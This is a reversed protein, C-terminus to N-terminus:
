TDTGRPVTSGHGGGQLGIRIAPRLVVHDRDGPGLVPAQPRESPQRRRLRQIIAISRSRSLLEPVPHRGAPGPGDGL